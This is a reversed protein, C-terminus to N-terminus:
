AAKWKITCGIAKTKNVSPKNGDLLADVADEVYKKDAAAADRTNNDIAGIYNVVLAGDDRKLIYM